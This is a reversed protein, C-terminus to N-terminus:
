TTRLFVAEQYYKAVKEVVHVLVYGFYRVHNITIIADVPTKDRRFFKGEFSLKSDIANENEIVHKIDACTREDLIDTLCKDKWLEMKSYGSIKRFLENSDIFSLDKKILASASGSNEFMFYYLVKFNSDLRNGESTLMSMDRFVARFYLVGEETMAPTILIAINMVTGDPKHFTYYNTTGPQEKNIAVQQIQHRLLKQEDPSFHDYFNITKPNEVALDHEFILEAAANMFFVRGDINSAVCPEFFFQGFDRLLYREDVRMERSYDRLIAVITDQGDYNIKDASLSLVVDTKDQKRASLLVKKCPKKVSRIHNLLTDTKGTDDRFHMADKEHQLELVNKYGMLKLFAENCENPLGDKLVVLGDNNLYAITDIMKRAPDFGTALKKTMSVDLINVIFLKNFILGTIGIRVKCILPKHEKSEFIWQFTDIKKEYADSLINAFIAQSETGDPQTEPMFDFISRNVIEDRPHQFYEEAGDNAELIVDHNLLLTAGSVTNVIQNLLPQEWDVKNTVWNDLNHSITIIGEPEGNSGLFPVKTITHGWLVDGKEPMYTVPTKKELTEKDKEAHYKAIRPPYLKNDSTGVLNKGAYMNAFADNVIAYKGSIDKYSVPYPISNMAAQLSAIQQDTLETHFTQAQKNHHRAM